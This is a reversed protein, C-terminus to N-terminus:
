FVSLPIKLFERLLIKIFAKKNYLTTTIIKVEAHTSKIIYITLAIKYPFLTSFRGFDRYEKRNKCINRTLFCKIYKVM